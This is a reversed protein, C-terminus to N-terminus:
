REGRKSLRDSCKRLCDIVDAKTMSQTPNHLTDFGVFLKEPYEDLYGAFTPGGPLTSIEPVDWFYTEEGIGANRLWDAPDKDPLLQIYGDLWHMGFNHCRKVVLLRNKYLENHVVPYRIHRLAQNLMELAIPDKIRIKTQMRRDTWVLECFYQGDSSISSKSDPLFRMNVNTMLALRAQEVKQWSTFYKVFKPMSIITTYLENSRDCRQEDFVVEDPKIKDYWDLEKIKELIQNTKM